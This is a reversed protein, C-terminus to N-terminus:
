RKKEQDSRWDSFIKSGLEGYKEGGDRAKYHKTVRVIVCAIRKSGPRVEEVEYGIIREKIGSKWGKAHDFGQM